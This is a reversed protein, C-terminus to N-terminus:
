ALNPKFATAFDATADIIARNFEWIPNQAKQVSDPLKDLQSDLGICVHSGLKAFRQQYKHWFSKSM